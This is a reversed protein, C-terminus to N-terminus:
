KIIADKKVFDVGKARELIKQLLADTSTWHWEQGCQCKGHAAYLALCGVRLWARDNVNVIYGLQAGCKQCSVAPVPPAATYDAKTEM